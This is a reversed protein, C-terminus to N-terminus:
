DRGEAIAAEIDETTPIFGGRLKIPKPPKPPHGKSLDIGKRILEAIIDKLKKHEHVARIKVERMLDDPLDLTTKM